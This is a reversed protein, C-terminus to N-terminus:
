FSRCCMHLQCNRCCIHPHSPVSHYFTFQRRSTATATLCNFGMWLFPGYLKNKKTKKQKKSYNHLHSATIIMCTTNKCHMIYMVTEITIICTVRVAIYVVTELLLKMNRESVAEKSLISWFVNLPMIDPKCTM